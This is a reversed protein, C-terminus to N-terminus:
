ETHSLRQLIDTIHEEMIQNEFSPSSNNASSPNPLCNFFAKVKQVAQPNKEEYAQLLAKKRELINFNEVQDELSKTEKELEEREKYATLEACVQIDDSKPVENESDSAEEVLTYLFSLHRLNASQTHFM